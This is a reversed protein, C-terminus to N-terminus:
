GRKIQQMEIDGPGSGRKEKSLSKRSSEHGYMEIGDAEVEFTEDDFTEETRLGNVM